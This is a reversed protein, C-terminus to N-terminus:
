TLDHWYIRAPVEFLCKDLIERNLSIILYRRTIELIPLYNRVGIFEDPNKAIDPFWKLKGIIIFQKEIDPFINMKIHGHGEADQICSGQM